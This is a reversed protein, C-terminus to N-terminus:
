SLWERSGDDRVLCWKAVKGLAHMLEVLAALVEARRAEDFEVVDRWAGKTNVQLKM